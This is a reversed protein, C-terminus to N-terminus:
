NTDVWLDGNAPSGPASTGVSLNINIATGPTQWSPLGGSLELIDGNTTAALRVFNGAANRYYVDGTAGVGENYAAVKLRTVVTAQTTTVYLKGNTTDDNFEVAGVEAATMLSGSTFTIPATGAATTGARITIKEHGGNESTAPNFDGDGNYHEKGLFENLVDGWAGDDGNVTPLRQDAM